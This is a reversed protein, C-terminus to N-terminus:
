IAIDEAQPQIKIKPTEHVLALGIAIVGIRGIFMLVSVFVKSFDSLSSTIGLSIGVTSLASSAEFLIEEFRFNEGEVLFLLFTAFMLFVLYFVFSSVASLIRNAPIERGFLTVYSQRTLVSKLVAYIATLSTTKVGGGTGSPSAGIIMLIILMLISAFSLDRLDMSNFGVTTHSTMSQFMATQLSCDGGNTLWITMTGLIWIFFTAIIIIKSTLTINKAQKFLYRKIDVFVIFGVSGLLALITITSLVWTNQSFSVFSDSFLSFGATCFASVSHFIALWIPNEFGMSEFQVYLVLAGISEIIITYIAISYVFEVMPYKQPLHYEEQLIKLSLKPFVNRKGLIIYSALSMYGIGGLQILFLICLEGFLNFTTGIDLSVLGTTSVVSFSMFIADIYSIDADRSVPMLMLILGILTLIGYGIIVLRIIGRRSQAFNNIWKSLATM